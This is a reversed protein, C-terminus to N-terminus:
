YPANKRKKAKMNSSAHVKYLMEPAEVNAQDKILNVLETYGATVNNEAELIREIQLIREQIQPVWKDQMFTQPIKSRRYKYGTVYDANDASAPTIQCWPKIDFTCRLISHDMKSLVNDLIPINHQELHQSIPLVEFHKYCKIQEYPVLIYDVVSKGKHSICTYDNSGLRGNLMATNTSILFDILDDGHANEVYDIIERPPLNDAGEIYDEHAGCRGNFDGGLILFGENQYQHIHTTLTSYFAIPDAHVSNEPPLYCVAIVISLESEKDQLKGWLIGPFSRDIIDFTFRQLM